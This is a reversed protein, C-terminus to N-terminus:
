GRRASSVERGWKILLERESEEATRLAALQESSVHHEICERVLNRLVRAPLADLEVSDGEFDKAHPNGNRKTPRTPLGHEDIQEKTLAIREIEPLHCDWRECFQKIRAKIVEPILCGSPDHDGFQYIYTIKGNAAAYAIRKSCEYLQSLSPMGKSIVTPVDYESAEKWIISGLGAKEVWIEVHDPCDRLASKRYFKATDEVADAISDYTQNEHTIRSEDIIWNWSIEDQWRMEGCLRIVTHQYEQETKEIVGNVVLAYYVQRINEPHDSKLVEKIANRIAEIDDKTRRPRKISGARYIQRTM